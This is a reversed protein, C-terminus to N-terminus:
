FFIAQGIYILLVTTETSFALYCDTKFQNLFKEHCVSTELATKSLWSRGKKESLREDLIAIKAKWRM